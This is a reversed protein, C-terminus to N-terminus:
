ESSKKNKVEIEQGMVKVLDGAYLKRRYRNEIQGNVEVEEEDIMDKADGGSLSINLVKLLQLLNIYQTELYFEKM